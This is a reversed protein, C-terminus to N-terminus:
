TLPYVAYLLPAALALIVISRLILLKKSHLEPHYRTLSFSWLTSFGSVPAAVALCMITLGIMALPDLMPVRPPQGHVNLLLTATIWAVMTLWPIIGLVMLTSSIRLKKQPSM